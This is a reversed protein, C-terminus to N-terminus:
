TLAVWSTVGSTVVVLRPKPTMVARPIKRYAAGEGKKKGGEEILNRFGSLAQAGSNARNGAGLSIM